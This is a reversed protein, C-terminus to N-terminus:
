EEVTNLMTKHFFIAVVLYVLAVAIFIFLNPFSFSTISAVFASVSIVISLNRCIRFDSPNLSNTLLLRIMRIIIVILDLLFIAVLLVSAAFIFEKM